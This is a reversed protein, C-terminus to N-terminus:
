RGPRALVERLVRRLLELPGDVATNPEHFVGRARDGVAACSPM